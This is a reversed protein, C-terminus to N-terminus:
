GVEGRREQWNGTDDSREIKENGINKRKLGNGINNVYTSYSTFLIM